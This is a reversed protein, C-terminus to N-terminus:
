VVSKRDRALTEDLASGDSHTYLFVIDDDAAKVAVNARDGM